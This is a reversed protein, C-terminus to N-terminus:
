RPRPAGFVPSRGRERVRSGAPRQGPREDQRVRDRERGVTGEGVRGELGGQARPAPQVTLDARQGLERDVRGSRRDVHRDRRHQQRLQPPHHVAVLDRVLALGPPDLGALATRREGPLGELIESRDDGRRVDLDGREGERCGLDRREVAAAESAVHIDLELVASVHGRRQDSRLDGLRDQPWRAGGQVVRRQAPEGGIPDTGQDDRGRGDVQGLLREAEGPRGDGRQAVARERRDDGFRRAVGEEPRHDALVRDPGRLDQEALERRDPLLLGALRAADRQDEALVRRQGTREERRDHPADRRRGPECGGDGAPEDRRERRGVVDTRADGDNRRNGMEYTAESLCALLRISVSREISGSFLRSGARRSVINSSASARWYRVEVVSPCANMSAARRLTRAVTSSRASSVTSETVSM